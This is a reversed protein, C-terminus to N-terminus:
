SSKKGHIYINRTQTLDTHLLENLHNVMLPPHFNVYCPTFFTLFNENKWNIESSKKFFIM